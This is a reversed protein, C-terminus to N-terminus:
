PEAHVVVAVDLEEVEAVRAGAADIAARETEQEALGGLVHERLGLHLDLMGDRVTIEALKVLRVLARGAFVVHLLDLRPHLLDDVLVQREVTAFHPEFLGDFDEALLSVFVLHPQQLGAPLGIHIVVHQAIGYVVVISTQKRGGTIDLHPVDDKIVVAKQKAHGVAVIGFHERRKHVLGLGKLNEGLIEFPVPDHVEPIGAVHVVDALRAASGVQDLNRLCQLLLFEHLNGLLDLPAVIIRLVRHPDHQDRPRRAASLGRDRSAQADLELGATQMRNRERGVVIEHVADLRRFQGVAAVVEVIELGHIM